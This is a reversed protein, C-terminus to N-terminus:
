HIKTKLVNQHGYRVNNLSIYHILQIITINITYNSDIIINDCQIYLVASFNPAPDATSYILMIVTKNKKILKINIAV